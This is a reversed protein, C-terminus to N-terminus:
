SKKQRSIFSRDDDELNENMESIDENLGKLKKNSKSYHKKLIKMM